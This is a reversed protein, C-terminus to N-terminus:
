WCCEHDHMCARMCLSSNSYLATTENISSINLSIIKKYHCKLETCAHAYAHVHLYRVHMPMPMCTCTSSMLELSLGVNLECTTTHKIPISSLPLKYKSTLSLTIGMVCSECLAPLLNSIYHVNWEITRIRSAICHIYVIVVVIFSLM